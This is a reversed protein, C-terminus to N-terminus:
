SGFIIKIMQTLIPLFSWRHCNHFCMDMNGMEERTVAHLKAM